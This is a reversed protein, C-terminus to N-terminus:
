RKSTAKAKTTSKTKTKTTKTKTKTTTKTKTKPTARAKTKTEPTAKAKSAPSAPNKKAAPQASPDFPQGNILRFLMAKQKITCDGLLKPDFHRELDAQGPNDLLEGVGSPDGLQHPRHDTWVVLPTTVKGRVVFPCHQEHGWIVDRVRCDGGVLLDQASAIAHAELSGGVVLLLWREVMDVIPGDVTLDGTVVLPAKLQLPGRVHLSGMVFQPKPSPTAKTVGRAGADHWTRALLALHWPLIDDPQQRGCWKFLAELKTPAERTLLDLSTTLAKRDVAAEYPAQWWAQEQAPIQRATELITALDAPM